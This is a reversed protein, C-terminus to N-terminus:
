LPTRLKISYCLFFAAELYLPLLLLALSLTSPRVGGNRARHICHFCAASSLGTHSWQCIYWWQSDGSCQRPFLSLIGEDIFHPYLRGWRNRLFTLVTLYVYTHSLVTCITFHQRFTLTAHHFRKSLLFVFCYVKHLSDRRSHQKRRQFDRGASNM